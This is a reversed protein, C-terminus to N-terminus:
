RDRLLMSSKDMAVMIRGNFIDAIYLASFLLAKVILAM